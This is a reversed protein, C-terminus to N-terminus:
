VEGFQFLGIICPSMLPYKKKQWVQNEVDINKNDFTINVEQQSLPIVLTVRNNNSFDYSNDKKNNESVAKSYNILIKGIQNFSAIEIKPKGVKSNIALISIM